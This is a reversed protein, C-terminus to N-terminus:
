RYLNVAPYICNEDIFGPYCKCGSVRRAVGEGLSDWYRQNEEDEEETEEDEEEAEEDEGEVEESEVEVEGEVEGEDEEENDSYLDDINWGDDNHQDL